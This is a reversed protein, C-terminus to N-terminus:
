DHGQGGASPPAAPLEIIFQAGGIPRNQATIQGQHGTIISHVISLGLGTGGTHRRTTFFPDFIRPLFEEPIGPGNDAVMIRIQGMICQTKILLQIPTLSAQIANRILNIFVQEIELPNIVALASQATLEQIVQTQRRQVLREVMLLAHRIIVHLDVPWKDTTEQKSFQLVSRTIQGCRRAHKIIDELCTRVLSQHEPQTNLALANEAALQMCGVPNNIEHAIGAALTGIAALRESRQLLERSAELEQTRQIVLEELQTRHRRLELETKKSETIDVGEPVLLRVQGESDKVARLSFAINRLQGTTDPHTTEFHAPEGTRAVEVIATKLQEQIQPDHKWWPGEWFPMGLIEELTIGSFNLALTNINQIRGDLSLVGALHISQNFIAEFQRLLQHLEHESQQQQTIDEFAVALRNNPLPFARSRYIGQVRGDHYDATYEDSQGTQAVKIYRATFGLERARPWIENFERGQWQEPDLGTLQRAAPNGTVLYLRDPPQYQYIFLGAPIANVIDVSTQLTEHLRREALKRETIDLATFLVGNPWNVQCPASSLLVDILRGDRCNWQTEITGVGTKEIQEYKFRGVREYEEQSSYLLRSCQGILEDMPYGTMRCMQQNIWQFFRNVTLGIGMPSAKFVTELTTEYEHQSREASKRRTCDRTVTIIEPSSSFLGHTILRATTEVWLYEGDKRRARYEIQMTGIKYVQQLALEISARDDPHVYDLGSTNIFESVQFGLLDVINPSIYLVRGSYDACCILDAAQEVVMRFLDLPVASTYAQNLANPM